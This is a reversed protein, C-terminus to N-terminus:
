NRRNRGLPARVLLRSNTRYWLWELDLKDKANCCTDYIGILDLRSPAEDWRMLNIMRTRPFHMQYCEAPSMNPCARRHYCPLLLMNLARVRM